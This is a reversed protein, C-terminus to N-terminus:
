SCLLKYPPRFLFLGSRRCLLVKRDFCFMLVQSAESAHSEDRDGVSRDAMNANPTYSKSTIQRSFKQCNEPVTSSGIEVTLASFCVFTGPPKESSPFMNQKDITPM